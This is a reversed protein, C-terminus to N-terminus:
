KRVERLIDRVDKRIEDLRKVDEARQAELTTVRRDVAGVVEQAVSRSVAAGLLGLTVVLGALVGLIKVTREMEAGSRGM